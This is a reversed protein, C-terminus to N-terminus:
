GPPSRRPPSTSSADWCPPPRSCGPRGDPCSGSGAASSAGSAQPVAAPSLHLGDSDADLLLRSLQRVFFPNGDTREHVLSVLDDDVRGDEGALRHVLEAVHSRELGRLTLEDVDEERSVTALTADLEPTRDAPLDRFAAVVLLERSALTPTLYSLLELSPPDAWQLDDLTIVLAQAQAARRVFV